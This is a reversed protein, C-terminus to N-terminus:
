WNGVEGANGAGELLLVYAAVVDRVDLFDREADLNGVWMFPDGGRGILSSRSRHL